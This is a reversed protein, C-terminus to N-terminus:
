SAAALATLPIGRQEGWAQWHEATEAAFAARLRAGVDGQPAIGLEALLARAVACPRSSRPPNAARRAAEIEDSFDKPDLM